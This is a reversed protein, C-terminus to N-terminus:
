SVILFKLFGYAVGPQVCECLAPGSTWFTNHGRLNIGAKFVAIDVFQIEATSWAFGQYM